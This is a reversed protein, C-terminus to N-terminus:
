VNLRSYELRRNAWGSSEERVINAMADLWAPHSNLCPLLHFHEGGAEIFRHAGERGVEDVTELCDATFGPCLAVLSKVGAEGLNHLTDDTYPQLWPERGFQSQFSITWQERSLHLVEALLQATIESQARYPDGENVYRQPISHFSFLYHDPHQGSEIVTTKLAQIYDPHDYYPAVFHVTPMNRKHASIPGTIAQTVADYISGITTSSFQPFMPFVVIRNIGAQELEQMASAISPSGYRMGLVVHYNSGLREQLGAVQALSHVMLPSGQETWINRYLAASRAPRRRLVILRLITQWVLPNYDVVRRDSLFQRLYPRLAAATPADPTGLQAVLVGIISKQMLNYRLHVRTFDLRHIKDCFM